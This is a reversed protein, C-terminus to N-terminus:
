VVLMLFSTIYSLPSCKWYKVLYKRFLAFMTEYTHKGQKLMAKVEKYVSRAREHLIREKLPTLRLFYNQEGLAERPTEVKTIISSLMIVIDNLYPPKAL